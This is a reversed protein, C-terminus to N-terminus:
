LKAPFRAAAALVAAHEREWASIRAQDTAARPHAAKYYGASPRRTDARWVLAPLCPLAAHRCANTVEGLAAHLKPNRQHVELQRALEGYTISPQATNVRRRLQSYIRRALPSM